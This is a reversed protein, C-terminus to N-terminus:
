LIDEGLQRVAAEFRPVQRDFATALYPRGPMRSTGDHVYLGYDVTPGTEGSMRGNRGDGTFSTSISEVLAGTDVPALAQADEQIAYMARRLVASGRSGVRGGNTAVRAGLARVQSTDIRVSM